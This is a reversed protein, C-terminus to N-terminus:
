ALGGLFVGIVLGTLFVRLLMRRFAGKGHQREYMAIMVPCFM